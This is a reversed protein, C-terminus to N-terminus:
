VLWSLDRGILLEMKTVHHTSKMPVLRIEFGHQLALQRIFPSDDYTMLFDGSVENSVRFLQEHDLDSHTYLRRGAVTYPPDIFYVAEADKERDKMYSLGDGKVFRIRHKRKSIEVIRKHLTEPYWRSRLGKGNEGNKVIGAGPALIGGRAVRNRIITALAQEFTSTHKATLATQVTEATLDLAVIAEALDKGKGNLVTSWVAAVDDDLEVLTVTTALEEFAATLGVIAGGCFPEILEAPPSPKSSLWQRIVPVLWTKGGPYRFPSRMPVSAVNVTKPMDSGFLTPTLSTEM